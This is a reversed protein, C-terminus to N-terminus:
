YHTGVTAADLVDVSLHPNTSSTATPGHITIGSAATLTSAYTTDQWLDIHCGRQLGAPVSIARSATAGDDRIIRGCNANSATYAVPEVFQAAHGNLLEVMLYTPNTVGVSMTAAVPATVDPTLVYSFSFHYLDSGGSAAPYNTVALSPSLTPTSSGNDWEVSVMRPDDTNGSTPLTLSTVNTNNSLSQSTIKAQRFNSVDMASFTYGDTLGTFAYSAAPTCTWARYAQSTSVNYGVMSPGAILTCTSPAVVSTDHSNYGSGIMTILVTDAAAPTSAFSLTTATATDSNRAGTTQVIQAGPGADAGGVYRPSFSGSSPTVPGSATAIWDSVPTPSGPQVSAGINKVVSGQVFWGSTPMATAAKVPAAYVTNVNPNTPDGKMLVLDFGAAHVYGIGVNLVNFSNVTAGYPWFEGPDAYDVNDSFYDGSTPNSPDVGVVDDSANMTYNRQYTIGGVAGPDVRFAVDGGDNNWNGSGGRGHQFYPDMDFTNDSVVGIIKGTQDNDEVGSDTLDSFTNRKVELNTFVGNNIIMGTYIGNIHNDDVALDRLYGNIGIGTASQLATYRSLSPNISGQTTNTDFTPEGFSTWNPFRANGSADKDSGDFSPYNSGIYNNSVTIEHSEGIAVSAAQAVQFFEPYPNQASSQSAFGAQGPVTNYQGPRASNGEIDIYLDSQNYNDLPGRAILDTLLNFSIIGATMSNEGQTAGNAPGAASTDVTIASGKIAGMRNGMIVWYKAGLVDIASTQLCTNGEIDVYRRVLWPDHLDSHASICDDLDNEVFNNKISLDDDEWASIGDSRNHTVRSDHISVQTSASVDIGFARLHDTIVHDIEVGDTYFVNLASGAGGPPDTWGYGDTTSGWTGTFHLHRVAINRARGTGLQSTDAGFM